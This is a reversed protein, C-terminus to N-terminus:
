IQFHFVSLPFHDIIKTVTRFPIDGIDESGWAKTALTM